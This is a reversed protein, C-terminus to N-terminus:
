VVEGMQSKIERNGAKDRGGRGREKISSRVKQALHKKYVVGEAGFLSKIERKKGRKDRVRNERERERETYNM